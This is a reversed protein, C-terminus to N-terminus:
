FKTGVGKTEGSRVSVPLTKRGSDHIFVVIHTGPSVQIGARPPKGVPKSDVLVSAGPPISNINLWAPADSAASSTVSTDNAAEVTNSLASVLASPASFPLAQTTVVITEVPAHTTRVATVALVVIALLVAVVGLAIPLTLSSRSSPSAASSSAMGKLDAILREQDWSPIRGARSRVVEALQRRSLRALLSRSSKPLHSMWRPSGLM